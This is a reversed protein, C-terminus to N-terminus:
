ARGATSDPNSAPWSREATQKARVPLCTIWYSGQALGLYALEWYWRAPRRTNAEPSDADKDNLRKSCASTRKTSAARGRESGAMSYALLAYMMPPDRLALKLSGPVSEHSPLAGPRWCRTSVGAQILGGSLPVDQWAAM